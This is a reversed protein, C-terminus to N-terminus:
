RTVSKGPPEGGSPTKTSDANSGPKFFDPGTGRNAPKGPPPPNAAASGGSVAEEEEFALNFARMVLGTAEIPKLSRFAAAIKDADIGPQADAMAVGFMTRVMKLRMRKADQFIDGIENIGVGLAEELNCIADASFRLKYDAEGVKFGVEGKHPNAM